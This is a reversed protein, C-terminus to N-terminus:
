VHLGKKYFEFYWILFQEPFTIVEKSSYGDAGLERKYKIKLTKAMNLVEAEISRDYSNELYNLLSKYNNMKIKTM